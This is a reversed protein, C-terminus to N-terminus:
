KQHICCIKLSHWHSKLYEPHEELVEALTRDKFCGNSVISSGDPHVSCEWTEALPTMDIKKGYEDRLRTGGWLYDKGAPSLLFPKTKWNMSISTM